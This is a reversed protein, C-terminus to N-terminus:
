LAHRRSGHTTLHKPYGTQAELGAARLLAEVRLATTEGGVLHYSAVCVHPRLRRLTEAAGELAELEAGEIDMKLVDLRSIGLRACEGDLRRADVAEGGAGDIGSALGQSTMRLRTDENWLAAGIVTVNRVGARRLNRELVARNKAGPEYAYVHGEEGVRESALLTYDGPYAGADVVIDGRRLPRLREYGRLPSYDQLFAPVLRSFALWHRLRNKWRFEPLGIFASIFPNPHLM